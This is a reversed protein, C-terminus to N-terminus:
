AYVYRTSRIMGQLDEDEGDTISCRLACQGCGLCQLGVGEVIARFSIQGFNTKPVTFVIKCYSGPKEV